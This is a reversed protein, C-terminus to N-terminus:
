TQKYNSVSINNDMARKYKNPVAANMASLTAQKVKQQSTHVGKEAQFVVKLDRQKTTTLNQGADLARHHGPNVCEVWPINTRLAYIPVSEVM